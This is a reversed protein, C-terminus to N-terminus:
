KVTSLRCRKWGIYLNERLSNVLAKSITAILFWYHLFKGHCEVRHCIWVEAAWQERLVPENENHLKEFCHIRLYELFCFVLMKKALLCCPCIVAHWSIDWCSYDTSIVNICTIFPEILQEPSCCSNICNCYSQPVVVNKYLTTNEVTLGTANQEGQFPQNERVHKGCREKYLYVM